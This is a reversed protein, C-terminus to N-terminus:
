ERAANVAARIDAIDSMLKRFAAMTQEQTRTADPPATQRLM